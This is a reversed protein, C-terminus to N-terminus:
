RLEERLLERGTGRRTGPRGARRWVLAWSGVCAAGAISAQSTLGCGGLRVPLRAQRVARSREARSATTSHVIKLFAEEILTDHLAAAAGAVRPGMTRLFYGFTSNACFRVVQMKVQLSLNCKGQGYRQVYDGEKRPKFDLM